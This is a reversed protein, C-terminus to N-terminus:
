SAWRATFRGRAARRARSLCSQRSSQSMCVCGAGAEPIMVLGNAPIANIWCGLRHGAFHQAGTDGALDYYGTFGSRFFLMNVAATIMGCHHGTRMISWPEAENTVVNTRTQQEGNYLNFAWPEAIIRDGVIIPRHRYNADKAWMLEGRDANLAVLRRKSFEGSVFQQWYHGNANAGCLLLVGQDYLLSLKGGGIGIESCDTVDVPLMWLQRGTKSDLAVAMRIDIRKM